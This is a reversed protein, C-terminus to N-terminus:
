MYHTFKQLDNKKIWVNEDFSSLRDSVQQFSFDESASSSISKANSLPTNHLCNDLIMTCTFVSDHYYNLRCKINNVLHIKSSLSNKEFM